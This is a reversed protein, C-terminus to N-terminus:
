PVKVVHWAGGVGDGAVDGPAKDNKHTYVPKGDYTWMEKGDDRKIVGWGSKSGTASASAMDIKNAYPPWAEACPGNCASKGDSDRDYIYLTMKNDNALVKGKSTMVQALASTSILVSVALVFLTKM